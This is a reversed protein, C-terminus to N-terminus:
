RVGGAIILDICDNVTLPNDHGVSRLINLCREVAAAESAAAYALADSERVLDEREACEPVRAVRWDNYGWPYHGVMGPESRHRIRYAVPEPMPVEAPAPADSALSALVRWLVNCFGRWDLSDWEAQTSQQPDAFRKLKAVLSLINEATYHHSAGVMARGDDNQEPAPASPAATMM